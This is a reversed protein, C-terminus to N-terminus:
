VLIRDFPLTYMIWAVEAQEEEKEENKSEPAFRRRRNETDPLFIRSLLDVASNLHFAIM